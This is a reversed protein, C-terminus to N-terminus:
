PNRWAHIAERYAGYAANPARDLDWFGLDLRYDSFSGTGTRYKWDVMELAPFWTYGRIDIGETRLRRASDLSDRMWRIKDEASGRVSTETIAIPRGYGAIRRCLRELWAAGGAHDSTLLAGDPARSLRQVSWQPYYNVGVLDIRPRASRIEDLDEGSIGAALMRGFLPHSADVRGFLLDWSVFQRLTELEAEEEDVGDGAVAASAVEVQVCEIGRAELVKMTTLMGKVVPIMVQYFGAEGNLCPPWDGKKGCWEAATYPENFPTASRVFEAYRELAREAYEGVLDPYAPDAFATTLWRPCGYHMLDLVLELGRDQVIHEIVADTWSWDWTGPAPNVLHWPIGWRLSDVGIDSALAIDERWRDYHRTLHYEDLSRGTVPHPEAIFTDEIGTCFSFHKEKL